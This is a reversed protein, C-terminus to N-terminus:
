KIMMKTLQKKVGYGILYLPSYAYKINRFKLKIKINKQCKVFVLYYKNNPQKKVVESSILVDDDCTLYNLRLTDPIYLLKTSECRLYFLHSLNPLIKINTNACYLRQLDKYEPIETIDTYHCYLAVLKPFHPLSKIFTFSCDLSRLNLLKPLNRLNLCSSCFLVKLKHLKTIKTINSSECYLNELESYYNNSIKDCLITTCNNAIITKVATLMSINNPNGKFWRYDHVKGLAKNLYYLGDM